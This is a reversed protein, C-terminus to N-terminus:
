RDITNVEVSLVYWFALLFRVSGHDNLAFAGFGRRPAKDDHNVKITLADKNRLPQFTLRTNRESAFSRRPTEAFVSISASNVM